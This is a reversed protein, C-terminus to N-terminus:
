MKKWIDPTLTQELRGSLSQGRSHRRRAMLPSSFAPTSPKKVGSGTRNWDQSNSRRKRAPTIPANGAARRGNQLANHEATANRKAPHSALSSEIKARHQNLRFSGVVGQSLFAPEESLTGGPTAMEVDSSDDQFQEMNLINSFEAPYEADMDSNEDAVSTFSSMLSPAFRPFPQPVQAAPVAADEFVDIRGDFMSALTARATFPREPSNDRVQAPIAIAPRPSDDSAKVASKARDWFAKHQASPQSPPYLITKRTSRDTTLTAKTPDCVFTGQRPGKGFKPTVIRKTSPTTKTSSSPTTKDPRPTSLKSTAAAERMAKRFQQMKAQQEEVTEDETEDGDDESESSVDAESSGSDEDLEFAFRDADDEFDYVSEVDSGNTSLGNWESDADRALIQQIKPDAQDMFIDPFQDAEEDDSSESSSNSAIRALAATSEQFRVRKQRNNNNNNTIAPMENDAGPKRWIGLEANEWLSGWTDSMFAAGQFPDENMNFGSLLALGDEGDDFSVRRSHDLQDMDATALSDTAPTRTYETEEFEAILDQEAERLVDVESQDDDAEEESVANVGDYDENDSDQAGVSAHADALEMSKEFELGITSRPQMMDIDMDDETGTLSGDNDFDFPYSRSLIEEDPESASDEEEDQEDGEEESGDHESDDNADDDNSDYDSSTETTNSKTTRLASKLYTKGAKSSTQRASATSRRPTRPYAM